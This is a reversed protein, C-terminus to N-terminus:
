EEPEEPPQAKAELHEFNPFKSIPAVAGGGFVDKIRGAVGAIMTNWTGVEEALAQIHRKEWYGGEDGVEDLLGLESAADLLAM